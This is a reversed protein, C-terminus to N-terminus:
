RIARPRFDDRMLARLRDEWYQQDLSLALVAGRSTAIGLRTDDVWDIWEAERPSTETGQARLATPVAGITVLLKAEGTGPEFQWITLQDDSTLAALMRGSPSFAVTKSGTAALPLILPRDQGSLDYVRIEDDARSTVLWRGSPDAALSLASLRDRSDDPPVVPHPPRSSVAQWELLTGDSISLILGNRDPISLLGGITQNPKLGGVKYHSLNGVDNWLLVDTPATAALTKGDSLWGIRQIDEGSAIWEMSATQDNSIRALDGARLGVALTGPAAHAMSVVASAGSALLQPTASSTGGRWAWIRGKADGAAIRGKYAVISTLPADVTFLRDLVPHQPVANWIRVQGDAHISVLQRGDLSWALRLIDGPIHFLRREVGFTGQADFNLLCLFGADCSSALLGSPAAKLVGISQSALQKRSSVVFSGHLQAVSVIQGQETGIILNGSEAAWGLSRIPVGDLGLVTQTRELNAANADVVKVEHDGAIAM